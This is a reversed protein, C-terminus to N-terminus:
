FTYRANLRLQRPAQYELPTGRELGEGRRTVTQADLLNFGDLELTSIGGSDMGFHVAARADLSHLMPTRAHTQELRTGSAVLYSLSVAGWVRSSFQLHRTGSLKFVHPRDVAVISADVTSLVPQTFDGRLRSWTYNFEARWQGSFRHVAEVVVVDQTRKM